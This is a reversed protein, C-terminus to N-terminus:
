ATLARSSGRVAQKAAFLAMLSFRDLMRAQGAEFDDGADFRATAAIPAVLRSAFPTQLRRVGSRGARAHAMVEAMSNGLPSVLGIGSVAVRRM